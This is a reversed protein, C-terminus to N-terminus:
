KDRKLENVADILENIKSALQRQRKHFTHKNLKEIEKLKFEYKNNEENYTVDYKKIEEELNYKKNNEDPFEIDYLKFNGDYILNLAAEIKEKPAAGFFVKSPTMFTYAITTEEIEFDYLNDYLYAVKFEGPNWNLNYGDFAITTKLVDDCYVNICTNVKIENRKIKELLEIGNFKNTKM